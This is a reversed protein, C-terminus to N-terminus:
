ETPASADLLSSLTNHNFGTPKTNFGVVVLIEVVYTGKPVQIPMRNSITTNAYVILGPSGDDNPQASAGFDSYQKLHNLIQEVSEATGDYYLCRIHHEVALRNKQTVLHQRVAYWPNNANVGITDTEIAAMLEMM